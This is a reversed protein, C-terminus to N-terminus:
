IRLELDVGLQIAVIMCLQNMVARLFRLIEVSSARPKGPVILKGLVYHLYRVRDRNCDTTFMVQLFRHNRPSLFVDDNHSFQQITQRTLLTLAPTQTALPLVQGPLPTNYIEQTLRLGFYLKKECRLARANELLYGWDLGPQSRILADLDTVRSLKNWHEKVGNIIAVLLQDEPSLVQVQVGALSLTHLREWLPATDLYFFWHTFRRDAGYWEEKHLRSGSAIEYADTELHHPTFGYHLDVSNSKDDRVLQAQVTAAEHNGFYAHYYGNRILLDKARLFDERRVLIDIDGFERLADSGYFQLTFVLGKFPTVPIKEKEFLRLIDVLLIRTHENWAVTHDMKEKWKELEGGPIASPFHKRLNHYVLPLVKNREALKGVVSWDPSAQLLVEIAEKDRPEIQTRAAALLLRGELSVNRIIAQKM